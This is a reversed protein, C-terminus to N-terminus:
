RDRVAVVYDVTLTKAAAAGNRLGWSPNLLTTPLAASLATNFIAVDRGRNATSPPQNDGTTPNFFAEVNGLYDVHIGLEFYVGDAVTNGSPFAATTQTGGTSVVLSLAQSGSAKKIWVGDTASLPTNTNNLLGAYFDCNTSDSLQGAFKFFLDRGANYKFSAAVLQQYVADTAGTSTTLLVAGGDFPTAAASGSGAVTTTFDATRYVVFDEAYLQSWTPDEIGAAAMTQWPAANTVGHPMRTTPNDFAM